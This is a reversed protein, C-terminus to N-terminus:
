AAKDGTEGGGIDAEEALMKLRTLGEELLPGMLPDLMLNFYRGFIDLGSDGHMQWIVETGQAIPRYQLSCASLRKEKGLTMDFAVGWDPQSRTFTMNGGGTKSQWSQHAGPGSDQDGTTIVLTPDTRLWPTWRPWQDLQGTFTHVREPAAKIVVSRTITYSSPLLFGVGVVVLAALAFGIGILKLVQGTNTM